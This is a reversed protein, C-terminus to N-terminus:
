QPARAGLNAALSVPFIWTVLVSGSWVEIGAFLIWAAALSWGVLVTVDDTARQRREAMISRRTPRDQLPLPLPYRPEVWVLDDVVM